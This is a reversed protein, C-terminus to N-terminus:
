KVVLTGSMGPHYTCYFKITGPRKVRMRVKASPPLQINFSGDRATASHQFMDRNDWLIIDGVHITGAIPEFKLQDIVVMHVAPVGRAAVPSAITLTAAVALLAGAKGM